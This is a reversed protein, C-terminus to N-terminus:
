RRRGGYTRVLWSRDEAARRAYGPASRKFLVTLAHVKGLTSRYGYRRVARGLAIRRVYAPYSLRYGLRMMHGDRLRIVRRGRRARGMLDV